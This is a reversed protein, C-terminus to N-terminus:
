EAMDPVYLCQTRGNPGFNGFATCRHFEGDPSRKLPWSNYKIVEGTIRVRWGEKTPTVDGAPIPKCDRGSCCAVEYFSHPLAPTGLLFAAALTLVTRM